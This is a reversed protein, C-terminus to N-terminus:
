LYGGLTRLEEEPLFGDTPRDMASLDSFQGDTLESEDDDPLDDAYEINIYNMLGSPDRASSATSSRGFDVSELSCCYETKANDYEDMYATTTSPDFQFVNGNGNNNTMEIRGGDGGGGATATATTPVTTPATTTIPAAAFSSVGREVERHGTVGGAYAEPISVTDSERPPFQIAPSQVAECSGSYGSSDSYVEEPYTILGEAAGGTGPIGTGDHESTRVTLGPSSSCPRSPRRALSRIILRNRVDAEPTKPSSLKLFENLVMRRELDLMHYRTLLGNMWYALGACRTDLDAESLKIGFFSRKFTRPFRGELTLL